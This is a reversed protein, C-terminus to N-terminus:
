GVIDEYPMKVEVPGPDQFPKGATLIKKSAAIVRLCTKEGFMAMHTYEPPIGLYGSLWGYCETRTMIKRDKWIQDFWHHADKRLIRLTTKALRGLAEKSRKHCGVWAFCPKCHWVWIDNLRTTEYVDNAKTLSTSQGCYPCVKGQMM